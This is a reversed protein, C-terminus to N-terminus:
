LFDALKQEDFAEAYYLSSSCDPLSSGLGLTLVEDNVQHILTRFLNYPLCPECYDYFSELLALCSIYTSTLINM